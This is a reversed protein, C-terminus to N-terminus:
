PLGPPDFEGNGDVDIFVPNTFSFVRENIVPVLRASTHGVEVVLYADDALNLDFTDDFRVVDTTEPIAIDELLQANNTWVKLYNIRIWSPAQVTVALPTNGDIPVTYIDGMGSGDVDVTVFPGGSVFSRHNRIADVMDEPDATEPDDTPMAFVNRPDGPPNGIGHTDSNGTMTYIYGQDLFSFWDALTGQDNAGSNFVEIAEFNPDWRNPVASSIGIAPDYGLWDFWGTGDRPHNIQAIEAGFVDRAIAWMDGFQYTHEVMGNDDYKVLPVGYYDHLDDQWGTLPWVNTHGIIPSVESGIVPHVWAQADM